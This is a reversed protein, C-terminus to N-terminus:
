APYHVNAEHKRQKITPSPLIYGIASTLLISWLQQSDTGVTLNVLSIGIVIYIVIVQCFFVVESKPFRRGCLPWHAGSSHNSGSDIM